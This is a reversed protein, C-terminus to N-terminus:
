SNRRLSTSSSMRRGHERYFRASRARLPRSLEDSATAPDALVCRVDAGGSARICDVAADLKAWNRGSVVVAAVALTRAIELGIGGTSGTVFETKDCLQLGM